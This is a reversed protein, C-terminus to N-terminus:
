LNRAQEPLRREHGPKVPAHKVRAVESLQSKTNVFSFTASIRAPPLAPICLYQSLEFM